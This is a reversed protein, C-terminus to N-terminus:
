LMHESVSVSMSFGATSQLNGSLVKTMAASFLHCETFLMYNHCSHCKGSNLFCFKPDTALYIKQLALITDKKKQCREVYKSSWNFLLMVNLLQVMYGHGSNM